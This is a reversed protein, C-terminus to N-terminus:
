TYDSALSCLQASAMLLTNQPFQEEQEKVKDEQQQQQDEEEEEEEEELAYIERNGTNLPVPM